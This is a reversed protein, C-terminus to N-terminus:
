TDSFLMMMKNIKMIKVLSASFERSMLNYRPGVNVKVFIDRMLVGRLIERHNSFIGPQIWEM